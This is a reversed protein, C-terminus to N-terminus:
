IDKRDDNKVSVTPKTWVPADEGDIDFSLNRISYSLEDSTSLEKLESTLEGGREEVSTGSTATLILASAERLKAQAKRLARLATEKPSVDNKVARSFIYRGPVMVKKGISYPCVTCKRKVEVTDGDLSRNMVPAMANKCVPCIHPLDTNDSERYEITIKVMGRDIGIRRIREDSVRYNEDIKRLENRVRNSFERQTEIHPVKEM